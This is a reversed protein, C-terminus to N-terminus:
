PPHDTVGCVAAGKIAWVREPIAIALQDVLGNEQQVATKKEASYANVPRSGHAVPACGTVAAGGALVVAMSSLGGKLAAECRWATVRDSPM